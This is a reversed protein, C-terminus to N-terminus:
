ATTGTEGIWVVATRPRRGRPQSRACARLTRLAVGQRRRGHAFLISGDRRRRARPRRSVCGDRRARGSRRGGRCLLRRHVRAMRSRRRGAHARGPGIASAVLASRRRRHVPARGRAASARAHHGAAIGDAGDRGSASRSLWLRREGPLFGIAGMRPLRADSLAALPQADRGGGPRSDDGPGHRSRRGMAPDGRRPGRRPRRRPIQGVLSLAHARNEGQGLFFVIETAGNPRLEVRTQLAGCPDLAAGTRNSLRAAGALAAPNDLSGNRGLFETRDGTWSIQRGRLDAFAVREGYGASYSNRALM